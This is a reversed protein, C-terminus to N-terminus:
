GVVQNAHFGMKEKHWENYGYNKPTRGVGLGDRERRLARAM